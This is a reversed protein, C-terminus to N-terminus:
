FIGGWVDNACTSLNHPARPIKREGVVLRFRDNSERALARRGEAQTGHDLVWPLGLSERPAGADRLGAAGVGKLESRKLGVGLPGEAEGRAPSGVRGGVRGGGDPGAAGAAGRREGGAPAEGVPCAWPLTQSMDRFHRERFAGRRESRGGCGCRTRRRARAGSECSRLVKTTLMARGGEVCVVSVLPLAIIHKGQLLTM